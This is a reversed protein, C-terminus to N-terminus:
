REGGARPGAGYQIGGLWEASVAIWSLGAQRLRQSETVFPGHTFTALVLNFVIACGIWSLCFVDTTLGRARRPDDAPLLRDAVIAPVAILLVLAVGYRAWASEVITGMFTAIGILSAYGGVVASIPKIIRRALSSKPPAAPEVLAKLDTDGLRM